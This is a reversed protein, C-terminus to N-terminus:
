QQDGHGTDAGDLLRLGHRAVASHSVRFALYLRVAELQESLEANEDLLTVIDTRAHAIFEADAGEVYEAITRYSLQGPIERIVGQAGNTWPGDTAALVRARIEAHQGRTEEGAGTM